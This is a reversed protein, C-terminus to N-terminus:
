YNQWKTAQPSKLHAPKPTKDEFDAENLEFSQNQESIGFKKLCEPTKTTTPPQEARIRTQHATWHEKEWYNLDKPDFDGYSLVETGTFRGFFTPRPPMEKDGKFLGSTKNTNYHIKPTVPGGPATMDIRVPKAPEQGINYPEHTDLGFGLYGSIFSMTSGYTYVLLGALLPSFVLTFFMFAQAETLM